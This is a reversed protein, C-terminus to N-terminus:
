ESGELEGSFSIPPELTLEILEAFSQARLADGQQGEAVKLLNELPDDPVSLYGSHIGSLRGLKFIEYVLVKEIPRAPVIEKGGDGHVSLM